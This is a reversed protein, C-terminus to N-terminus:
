NNRYHKLNLLMLMLQLQFIFSLLLISYYDVITTVYAHLFVSNSTIQMQGIVGM